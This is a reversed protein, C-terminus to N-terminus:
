RKIHRDMERAAKSLEEEPDAGQLVVRQIAQEIFRTSKDWGLVSPPGKGDEAQLKLIQKFDEEIPLIGWTTINSPLYSDQTARAASYLKVQTQPQFLFKIFEWAEKKHKSNNFIGMIRGGLFATHAGTPGAPLLAISWRGAIEPATLRLGDIKWNGSIVLPFDGTRLGQELPIRTKPVGLETYLRSFFKLAEVAAESDVTPKRGEPDYFDGGAQWLYPAYGIWSMSGWDFIMGKNRAKLDLLLDELEGWTKPPKAIIDNRYFMIQLSLDFPIGYVRKKYEVTDWLGSFNKEKIVKIDEGFEEALDVMAGLSGFKTGWTLGMTGIDPIVGGAMSTLYKTYADGWSIAECRFSIGKDKFFEDGIGQIAKAQSESGVLWMLLEQQRKSQGGAAKSEQKGCGTLSVSLVFTLIWFMFKTKQM